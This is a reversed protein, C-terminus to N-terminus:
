RRGRGSSLPILTPVGHGHGRIDLIGQCKNKGIKFLDTSPSLRSIRNKIIKPWNDLSLTIHLGKKRSMQVNQVNVIFALFQFHWTFNTRLILLDVFTQRNRLIAVVKTNYRKHLGLGRWSWRWWRLLLLLINIVTSQAQWNRFADFFPLSNNNKISLHETVEELSWYYLFSLRGVVCVWWLWWM